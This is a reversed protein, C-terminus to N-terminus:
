ARGSMRGKNRLAIKFVVLNLSDCYRPLLRKPEVLLRFFWEMGTKRFFWPAESLEKSVYGVAAGIGIAPKKTAKNIQFGFYDQKPTGLVVWILDVETEALFNITTELAADLSVSLPLPLHILNAGTSLKDKVIHSMSEFSLISGGVFLHVIKSKESLADRLLDAGRIGSFNKNTKRIYKNIWYSDCLLISDEYIKFLDNHKESLTWNYVNFLSVYRPSSIIKQFFFPEYSNIEYKSDFLAKM